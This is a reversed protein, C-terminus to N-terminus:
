ILTSLVFSVSFFVIADTVEQQALTRGQRAIGKGADDRELGPEGRHNDRPLRPQRHPQRIYRGDM